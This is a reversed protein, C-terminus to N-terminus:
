TLSDQANAYRFLPASAGRSRRRDNGPRSIWGKKKLRIRKQPDPCRGDKCMARKHMEDKSMNQSNNQGNSQSDGNTNIQSNDVNNPPMADKAGESKTMNAHGNNSNSGSDEALAAGSALAMCLTLLLTALKNM